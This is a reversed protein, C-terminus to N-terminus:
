YSFNLDLKILVQYKKFNPQKWPLGLIKHTNINVKDKKQNIKEEQFSGFFIM